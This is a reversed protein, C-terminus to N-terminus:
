DIITVKIEAKVDPNSRSTVTVTCTGAKVGYIWGYEDVTAISEDSSTWIESKDSADYPLMTVYSINGYGAQITLETKSLLIDTVKVYESSDTVTVKIEAKVSPNSTSTVTVTCTGAKVGYIWGYEDVTAISEDSSTWIESKDSADYPLITM